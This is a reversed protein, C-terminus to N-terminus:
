QEQCQCKFYYYVEGTKQVCQGNTMSEACTCGDNLLPYGPNDPTPTAPISGQDKWKYVKPQSQADSVIAGGTTLQTCSGADMEYKVINYGWPVSGMGYGFVPKGDPNVRGGSADKNCSDWTKKEAYYRPSLDCECNSSNYGPNTYTCGPLSVTNLRYQGKATDAPWATAPATGSAPLVAPSPSAQRFKGPPCNAFEYKDSLGCSCPPAWPSASMTLKGAADCTWTETRTQTGSFPFTCSQGKAEAYGTCTAPCVANWNNTTGGCTSSTVTYSGTYGNGCPKVTTTVTGSNVCVGGDNSTQWAGNNCTYKRSRCDGRTLIGTTWGHGQSTVSVDGAACLTFTAAACSLNIASCDPSGDAKLGVLAPTSASCKVKVQGCEPKANAGDGKMGTMYTGPPCKMGSDPDATANSGAINKPKFCNTGNTDCYSDAKIVGNVRLAGNQGGIASHQLTLSQTATPTGIGINGDAMDVINESTPTERRWLPIDYASFYQVFDDFDNAGGSLSKQSMAYVSDTPPAAFDRCNGVELTAGACPVQLVGLKNYAGIRNPGHSLVLFNGSGPPSVMDEGNENVINIGGEREQFTALVGQRETLAYQLRSGYADFTEKEDMQLVRFPIAGVRVRPNVGSITRVSQEICVGGACSGVPLATDACDTPMGYAPDTRAADLSAPCPYFGRQQRYTHLKSVALEISLQSNTTEGSQRYIAYLQAFGALFLGIIMLAMAMELLSYGGASGCYSSELNNKELSM